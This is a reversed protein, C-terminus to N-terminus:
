GNKLEGGGFLIVGKIHLVKNPDAKAISTVRQDSFGGFVVTLQSINITWDAPVKFTTGGFMAFIDIVNTGSSLVAQTLDIDAGGFMATTKGGTFDKATVKKELGSFIAVEDIRPSDIENSFKDSNRHRLLIFVGVLILAVPWLEKFSFYFHLIDQLVFFTAGIILPILGDKKGLALAVVGITILLTKWTFFYYPLNLFHLSRVLFALGIIILVIGATNRRNTTQKDM